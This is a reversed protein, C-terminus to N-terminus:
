ATGVAGVPHALLEPKVLGYAAGFLDLTEGLARGFNELIDIDASIQDASSFRRLRLSHAIENRREFFDELASVFKGHTRAPEMEGFMNLLPKKDCVKLCVDGLGSLKFLSNIEGVRMNNENHILDRYIDKTLDGRCFEYISSFGAQAAGFIDEMSKGNLDFKVRGLREMTRRWATNALKPPLKDFYGASIVIIRAYERAMERIFEEFTAALLLTASNAAAVRTKITQRTDSLAVVLSRIVSLDDSFEEVILEFVSTM